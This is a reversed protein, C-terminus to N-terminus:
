RTKSARLLMREADRLQDLESQIVRRYADMLDGELSVALATPDQEEKDIIYSLLAATDRFLEDM